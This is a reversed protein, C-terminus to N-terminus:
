LEGNKLLSHLSFSMNKMNKAQKETQHTNELTQKSAVQIAAIAQAIQDVGAAQQESSARIQSASSSSLSITEALARIVEGAQNVLEVGAEVAKTGTATNSLAATVAKQIEGLISRIQVTAQRSQEALSRVESAVVSFGYGHEGARAAEIAANVALMNSQEALEQVTSIIEGVAQTQESLHQMDSAIAQVEKRITQMGNITREVAERGRLTVKESTLALHAVEEAKKTSLATVQKLEGVTVSTESVASSEESMAAAQKTTAELIGSSAEAVLSATEQLAKILNELKGRAERESVIKAEIQEAMNNFSEALTTMEDNGIIPVRATLDGSSIKLASEQIFLVRNSVSRAMTLIILILCLIFANVGSTILSVQNSLKDTYDALMDTISNLSMLIPSIDREFSLLNGQHTASSNTISQNLQIFIRNWDDYARAINDSAPAFSAPIEDTLYNLERHLQRKEANIEEITQSREIVSIDGTLRTSLDFIRWLRSETSSTIQCLKNAKKLKPEMGLVLVCTVSLTVVLLIAVVWSLTQSTSRRKNFGITQTASAM